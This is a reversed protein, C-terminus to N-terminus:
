SRPSFADPCHVLHRHPPPPPSHHPPPLPCPPTALLFLSLPNRECLAHTFAPSLHAQPQAEPEQSQKKPWSHRQSPGLLLCIVPIWQCYLLSPFQGLGLAGSPAPCALLVTPVLHPASVFLPPHLSAPLATGSLRVRGGAVYMGFGLQPGGQPQGGLVRLVSCLAQHLSSTEQFSQGGVEKYVSFGLPAPWHALLPGDTVGPCSGQYGTERVGLDSVERKAEPGCALSWSNQVVSLPPM